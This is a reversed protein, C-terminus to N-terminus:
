WSAWTVLFVKKGRYDSLSHTRGDVDPLTFDPADLSALSSARDRASVGLVWVDGADSHATARGLHQWLAAANVRGARVFDNERGKPVPVCVEGRCLGEPKAVWGTADEMDRASLWLASADAPAATTFTGSDTLVTTM